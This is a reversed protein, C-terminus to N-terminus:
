FKADSTKKEKERVASSAINNEGSIRCINNSKGLYFTLPLVAFSM